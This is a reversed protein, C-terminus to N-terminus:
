FRILASIGAQDPSVTPILEIPSRPAETRHARNLWALVLGGAIGTGGAVFAGIALRNKAV